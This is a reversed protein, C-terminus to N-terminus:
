KRAICATEIIVPISLSRRFYDGNEKIFNLFLKSKQPMAARDPYVLYATSTQRSWENLLSTLNGSQIHPMVLPLPLYAVGVGNLAYALSIYLDDSLIDPEQQHQYVEGDKYLNWPLIFGDVHNRISTCKQLDKPHLPISNKTLWDKSAVLEYDVKTLPLAILSSDVLEGVRFAFDISSKTLDQFRNTVDLEIRIQPYM